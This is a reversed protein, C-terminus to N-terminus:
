PRGWRAAPSGGVDAPACLPARVNPQGSAGGPCAPGVAAWQRSRDARDARSGAPRPAALPPAPPRPPAAPAARSCGPRPRRRPRRRRCRAGEPGRHARRRACAPPSGRSGAGASPRRARSCRGRGRARGPGASRHLDVDVAPQRGHASPSAGRRPVQRRRPPGSRCGRSLGCESAPGRPGDRHRGACVSSCRAKHDGTM